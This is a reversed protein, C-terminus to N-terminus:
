FDGYNVQLCTIGMSRWMEVVQDRDDVIFLVNYKDKIFQNFMERKIISDKRADGPKRMHLEYVIIDQDDLWQRTEPESDGNRGSFLIIKPSVYAESSQILHLLRIVSENPLDVACSKGDYPSRDGICALTGDIDFIVCSPLSEDFVLPNLAKKEPKPAIFQKHMGRIVKEGVSNPRQLDRKICEEVPVELFVDYVNLNAEHKVALEAMRAQHKPALNTDDIIVSKGDALATEIIQDRIKLIQKENFKSWKGDHLMARLEDKNVRVYEGPRDELLQRAFTSKGSAPLGKLLIIEKM